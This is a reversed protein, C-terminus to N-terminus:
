GTTELGLARRITGAVLETDNIPAYSWSEIKGM